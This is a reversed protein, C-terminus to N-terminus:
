FRYAYQTKKILNIGLKAAREMLARLGDYDEDSVDVWKGLRLTNLIEQGEPDQHMQLLVKKVKSLKGLDLDSRVLLPAIPIPATTALIQLMEEVKPNRRKMLIYGEEDIVAASHSNTLVEIILDRSQGFELVQINSPNGKGESVGRQILTVPAGERVLIESFLAIIGKYKEGKEEVHFLKWGKLDQLDDIGERKRIVLLHRFGNQPRDRFPSVSLFPDLPVSEQVKLAEFDSLGFCFDIESSRVGEEVSASDSRKEIRIKVGSKKTIYDAFLQFNQLFLDAAENSLFKQPFAGKLVSEESAWTPTLHSSLLGILLVMLVLRM